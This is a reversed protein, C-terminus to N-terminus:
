RLTSIQNQAKMHQKILTGNITPMQLLHNRPIVHFSDSASIICNHIRCHYTNTLQHQHSSMITAGHPSRPQLFLAWETEQGSTTFAM